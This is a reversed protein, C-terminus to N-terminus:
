AEEKGTRRRDWVLDTGKAFSTRLTRQPFLVSETQFVLSRGYRPVAPLGNFSEFPVYWM